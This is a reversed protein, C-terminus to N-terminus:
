PNTKHIDQRNSTLHVTLIEQCGLISILYVTLELSIQHFIM